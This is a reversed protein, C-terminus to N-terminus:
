PEATTTTAIAAVARQWDKLASAFCADWVQDTASDVAFIDFASDQLCAAMSTVFDLDVPLPFPARTTGTNPRFSPDMAIQSGWPVQPPIVNEAADLLSPPLPVRNPGDDAPLIVVGEVPRQWYDVGQVEVVAFAIDAPLGHYMQWQRGEADIGTCCIPQRGESAEVGNEAALTTSTGIGDTWVNVTDYVVWQVGGAEFARVHHAVETGSPTDLRRARAFEEPAPLAKLPIETGTPHAGSVTTVSTSVDPPTVPVTPGNARGGVLAAAVVIAVIAAAAAVLHWMPRRHEDSLRLDSRGRSTIIADAGPDDLPQGDVEAAKRALVDVLRLELDNM